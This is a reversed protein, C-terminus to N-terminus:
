RSLYVTLSSSTKPKQSVLGKRSSEVDSTTAKREVKVLNVIGRIGRAQHKSKLKEHRRWRYMYSSGFNWIWDCRWDRADLGFLYEVEM